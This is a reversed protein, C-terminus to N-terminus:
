TPRSRRGPATTSRRSRTTRRREVIALEQGPPVRVDRATSRSACASASSRSCRRACTTPSAAPSRSTAAPSPPWASSRASRSTTPASSTRRAALAASVRARAAPELRHGRDRRGDRRAPPLPGARAARLRRPPDDDPGRRLSPPWSRTRPARHRSAEDLHFETGKLGGPARFRYTRDATVEAGLAELALLHTDVRRRGIVDGGPCRCTPAASARSCRAPSCSRPASASRSGEDLSTSDFTPPACACRTARRGSSRPASTPSCSSCRRSTASARCTASCSRSPRSCRRRSCPLAANKNGEPRITGALPM